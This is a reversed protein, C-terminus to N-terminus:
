TGLVVDVISSSGSLDPCGHLWLGFPPRSVWGGESLPFHRRRDQCPDDRDSQLRNRAHSALADCDDDSVAMSLYLDPM